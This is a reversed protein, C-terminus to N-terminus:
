DKENANELGRTKKLPKSKWYKLLYLSISKNGVLWYSCDTVTAPIFENSYGDTAWWWRQTFSTKGNPTLTFHLSTSDVNRGRFIRTARFNRDARRHPHPSHRRGIKRRISQTCINWHNILNRIQESWHKITSVAFINDWSFLRVVFIYVILWIKYDYYFTPFTSIIFSVM